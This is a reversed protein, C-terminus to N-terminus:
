LVLPIKDAETSSPLQPHQISVKLLRAFNSSDFPMAGYIMTFLIIGCSWAESLNPRYERCMLIEPATFGLVGCFTNLAANRNKIHRCYSFDCLKLEFNNTVLCNDTSLKRHCIGYDLCYNVANILQCFFNRYTVPDLRGRARIFDSLNGNDVCEMMIYIRLGIEYTEIFQIINPHRFTKEKALDLERPVFKFFRKDPIGIKPIIKISVDIKRVKSFYRNVITYTGNKLRSKFEYVSNINRYIPPKPKFELEKQKREQFFRKPPPTRESEDEENESGNEWCNKNRLFCCYDNNAVQQHPPQVEELDGPKSYDDGDDNAQFLPAPPNTDVVAKVSDHGEKTKLIGIKRMFDDSEDMQSTRKSLFQLLQEDTELSSRQRRLLSEERREETLMFRFGSLEPESHLRNSTIM